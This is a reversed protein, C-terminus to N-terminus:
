FAIRAGIAVGTATPAVGVRARDLPVDIWGGHSSSGWVVAGIGAGLAAGGLLGIPIAEPCPDRVPSGFGFQWTCVAATGLGGLLGILSGIIAGNKVPTAPRAARAIQLYRVDQWAIRTTDGDHRVVIGEADSRFLSGTVHHGETVGIRVVSGPYLSSRPVQARVAAGGACQIALTIALIRRM